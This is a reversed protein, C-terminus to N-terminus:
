FMPVVILKSMFNPRYAGEEDIGENGYCAKNMMKLKMM